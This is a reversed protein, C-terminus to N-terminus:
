RMAQDFLIDFWPDFLEKRSLTTSCIMCYNNSNGERKRIIIHANDASYALEKGSPLLVTESAGEKFDRLALLFVVDGKKAETYLMDKLADSYYLRVYKKKENYIIVEEIMDYLQMDGDPCTFEYVIDEEHDRIHISGYDHNITDNTEFSVIITYRVYGNNEAIDLMFEKSEDLLKSLESICDITANKIINFFLFQMVKQDENKVNEKYVKSM